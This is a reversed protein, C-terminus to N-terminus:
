KSGWTKYNIELNSFNIGTYGRVTFVFGRSKIQTRLRAATERVFFNDSACEGNVLIELEMDTNFSIEKLQKKKNTDFDIEKSKWEANVGSTGKTMRVVMFSTIAYGGDAIGKLSKADMLMEADEVMDYSFLVREGKKELILAYNGDIRVARGYVEYESLDVITQVEKLTNGSFIKLTKGTILFVNEGIPLLSNEVLKESFCLIKKLQYDIADGFVTYEYVAWECFVLMKKERGILALVNGSEKPLTVYNLVNELVGANEFEEYSGSFVRGGSAFFIKDGLTACTEEFVSVGSVSVVGETDILYNIRDPFTLLACEEGNFIVKKVLM